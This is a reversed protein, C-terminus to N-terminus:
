KAESTIRSLIFRLVDPNTWVPRGDDLKEGKARLGERIRLFTKAEAPKLQVQLHTGGRPSMSLRGGSAQDCEYGIPIEGLPLDIKLTVMELEQKPDPKLAAKEPAKKEPKSKQKPEAKPKEKKPEVAPKEASEVRPDDIMPEREDELPDLNMLATLIIEEYKPGIGSVADSIDGGADVWAKLGEPRIFQEFGKETSKSEILREIEAPIGLEEYTKAM